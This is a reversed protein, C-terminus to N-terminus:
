PTAGKEPKSPQFPASAGKDPDVEPEQVSPPEAKSEAKAAPPLAGKPPASPKGVAKGASGKGHGKEKNASPQSAAGKKHAAATPSGGGRAGQGSAQGPPSKSGETATRSPEGQPGAGRRSAAQQPSTEGKASSGTRESRDHEESTLAGPGGEGPQGQGSAPAPPQSAPASSRAGNDSPLPVEVLGGRDAATAGVAVVAVTAAAKLAASKGVGVAAAGALSGGAGAGAGAVASGAAGGGLLAQLLGASAALPLPALAAFDDRRKAIEDRFARCEPCSRLHAQIERRRAARGDALSLDWMVDKCRMERGAETQRLGLRAEYVAQRAAGESTELAAGIEDFGLGALERMVLASRQRGPLEDLDDLLHRLRERTAAAESPGGTAVALEPDLEEGERRRRLVEIAENHAVRYLWPRLQIRRTEGPLARLAKVMTNQLADQADQPNRVITLCFRYLDQHYRRYIAAFAKPDGDAARRALREDKM